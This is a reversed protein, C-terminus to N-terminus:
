VEPLKNVKTRHIFLGLICHGTLESINRTKRLAWGSAAFVQHTIEPTRSHNLESHM